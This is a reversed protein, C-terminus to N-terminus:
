QAPSPLPVADRIADECDNKKSDINFKALIAADECAYSHGGSQRHCINEYIDVVRKNSDAVACVANVFIDALRGAVRPNRQGVQGVVRAYIPCVTDAWRQFRSDVREIQKIWRLETASPQANGAYVPDPMGCVFMALAVTTALLISKNM